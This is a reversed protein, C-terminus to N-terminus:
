LRWHWCIFRKLTQECNFINAKTGHSCHPPKSFQAKVILWTRIGSFYLEDTKVVSGYFSANIYVFLIQVTM